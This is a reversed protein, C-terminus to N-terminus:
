NKTRLIYRTPATPLRIHLCGPSTSADFSSYNQLSQPSLADVSMILSKCFSLGSLQRWNKNASRQKDRVGTNQVEVAGFLRCQLFQTHCSLCWFFQSPYSSTFRKAFSPSLVWLEQLISIKLRPLALVLETNRM